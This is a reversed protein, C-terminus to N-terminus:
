SVGRRVLFPLLAVVIMAAALGLSGASAPVHLRPYATV